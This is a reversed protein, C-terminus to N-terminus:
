DKIFIYHLKITNFFIVKNPFSKNNTKEFISNTIKKLSLM